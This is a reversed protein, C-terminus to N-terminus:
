LLERVAAVITQSNPIAARELTRSSPIPIDPTTVRKIPADLYDYAHEFIQFGIEACVGGTRCGEEVLVVKRTKRVSAVLGEMDLPNLTRLDLVEAHIGDERLQAAARMAEVVMWSYTIISVANGETVCRLRGFPVLVDDDPISQRQGYLLKHEIFLVPNDDRIATKLLGRADAPSSPAVVKLGPAHMFWADLTQSHTPGYSRGGGAVTRVVIPCRAQPGFVYRLKAAQNVLQDMCLTLFDMFMIEVVPRLGTLAAGIAVGVFSGESIPTNIVREPGFRELLGRTIGFAGGYCGIDEGLLIVRSDRLMEEALAERVGETFSIERM